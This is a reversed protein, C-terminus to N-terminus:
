SEECHNTDGENNRHERRDRDRREIDQRGNREANKMLCPTENVNDSTERRTKPNKRNMVKM